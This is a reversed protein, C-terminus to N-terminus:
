PLLEQKAEEASVAEGDLYEKWAESARADEELTTPEDDVPADLLGRVLPDSTDRLYELYRLAADLESDPLQDVVRRLNEKTTM